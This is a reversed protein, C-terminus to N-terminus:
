MADFTVDDLDEFRQKLEEGNTKKPMKYKIM